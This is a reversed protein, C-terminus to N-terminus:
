EDTHRLTSEVVMALIRRPRSWTACLTLDRPREAGVSRLPFHEAGAGCIAVQRHRRPRIDAASPLYLRYGIVASPTWSRQMNGESDPRESNNRPRRVWTAQSSHGPLHKKARNIGSVERDSPRSQHFTPLIIDEHSVGEVAFQLGLGHYAVGIPFPRHQFLAQARIDFALKPELEIEALHDKGGYKASVLYIEMMNWRCMYLDFSRIVLQGYLM